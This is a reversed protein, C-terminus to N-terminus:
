RCLLEIAMIIGFAAVLAFQFILLRRQERNMASSSQAKDSGCPV